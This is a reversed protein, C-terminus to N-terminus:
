GQHLPNIVNECLKHINKKKFSTLMLFPNNRRVSSYESIIMMAHSIMGPCRVVGGDWGEVISEEWGMIQNTLVGIRIIGHRGMVGRGPGKKTFIM